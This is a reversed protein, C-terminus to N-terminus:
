RIFHFSIFWFKSVHELSSRNFFTIFYDIKLLDESWFLFYTYLLHTYNFISPMPSKKILSPNLKPLIKEKEVIASSSQSEKEFRATKEPLNHLSSFITVVFLLVVIASSVELILIEEIAAPCDLTIIRKRKM